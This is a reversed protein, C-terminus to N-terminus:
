LYLKLFRLSIKEFSTKRDLPVSQLVVFLVVNNLDTVDSSNNTKWRPETMGFFTSLAREAEGPEGVLKGEDSDMREAPDDGRRAGDCWWCCDAAAAAATKPRRGGDDTELDSGTLTTVGLPLNRVEIYIDGKLSKLLKKELRLDFTIKHKLSVRM